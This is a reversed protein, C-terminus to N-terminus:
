YVQLGLSGSAQKTNSSALFLRVDSKQNYVYQLATPDYHLPAASCLQAASNPCCCRLTAGCYMAHTNPLLLAANGWLVYRTYQAVAACRQGVTCLTHIPCCGRLTAGCYMAHTNPLLLAANGWLIYRTYQAVAACRQGV